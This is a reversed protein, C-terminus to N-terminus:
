KRASVQRLRPAGLAEGLDIGLAEEVELRGPRVDREDVPQRPPDVPGLVGEVVRLELSGIAVRDEQEPDLGVQAPAGERLQDDPQGLIEANLHHDGEPRQERVDRVRAVGGTM